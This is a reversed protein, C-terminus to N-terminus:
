FTEREYGFSAAMSPDMKGSLTIRGKSWQKIAERDRIQWFDCNSKNTKSIMDQLASPFERALYNARALLDDPPEKNDPWSELM